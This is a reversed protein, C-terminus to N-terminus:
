ICAGLPAIIVPRSIAACTSHQAVWFRTCVHDVIRTYVFSDLQFEFEFVSSGSWIWCSREAEQTIVWCYEQMGTLFFQARTEHINNLKRVKKNAYNQFKRVQFHLPRPVDKIQFNIKLSRSENETSVGYCAPNKLRKISRIIKCPV